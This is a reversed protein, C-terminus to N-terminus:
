RKATSWNLDNTGCGAGSSSKFAIRVNGRAQKGNSALKGFARLTGDSIGAGQIPGKRTFKDRGRLGFSPLQATVTGSSADDCTVPVHNFRLDTVKLLEGDTKKVAFKVEAEPVGDISGEHKITDASAAAPLALALVAVGTMTAKRMFVAERENM